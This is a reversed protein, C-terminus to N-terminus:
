KKIKKQLNKIITFSEDTSSDDIIVIEKNKWKQKIASNITRRITNSSNYCTIGITILPKKM